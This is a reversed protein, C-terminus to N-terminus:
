EVKGATRGGFYYTDLSKVSVVEKEPYRLATLGGGISAGQDINITNNVFVPELVPTHGYVILASGSYLSAWDKRLPFGEEDLEGSVDGYLVFDTIEKSMNGIMSEKIGAHAVVLRGEDLILYIPATEYLRIFGKKLRDSSHKDLMDFEAVSKELGNKIQVKRGNLYRYFKNCHNGPVYYASGSATMDIVTRVTDIIRPGRDVIDGAFIVKRKDPHIYSSSQKQYGLKYLLMELESMCGHIDSIIDFPGSDHIEMNSSIINFKFSDMEDEKLIVVKDFEEKNIYDLAENFLKYQKEIVKEAVIRDRMSNRTLCTSLPVDFAALVTYYNYERALRLLKKRADFTLATSDAVVLRGMEMRKEMIFYFVDFARKSAAMNGEDDSVLARCRDSSVIATPKFNKSVFTSKGCGAVGCTVLLSAEPITLGM